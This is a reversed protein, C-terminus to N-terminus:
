GLQYFYFTNGTFSRLGKLSISSPLVVSIAIDPSTVPQNATVAVASINISRPSGLPILFSCEYRPHTIIREPCNDLGGTVVFYVFAFKPDDITKEAVVKVTDGEKFSDGSRPSIIVLAQSTQAMLLILGLSMFRIKKIRM